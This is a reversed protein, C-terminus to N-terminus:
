KSEWNDGDDCSMCSKNLIDYETHKCNLCIDSYKWNLEEQMDEEAIKEIKKNKITTFFSHERDHRDCHKLYKKVEPITEDQIGNNWYGKGIHKYTKSM